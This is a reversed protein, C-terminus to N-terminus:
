AAKTNAKLAVDVLIEHNERLKTNQKIVELAKATTLPGNEKNKDILQIIWGETFGLAMALQLRIDTRDIASLAKQTLKM